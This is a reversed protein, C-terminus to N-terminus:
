SGAESNKKVVRHWSLLHPFQPESPDPVQQIDPTSDSASCLSSDLLQPEALPRPKAPPWSSGEGTEGDPGPFASGTFCLQTYLM